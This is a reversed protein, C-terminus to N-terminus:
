VVSRKAKTRYLLPLRRNRDILSPHDAESALKASLSGRKRSNAISQDSVSAVHGVRLLALLALGLQEALLPPVANAVQTFRPVEKRRRHGGTTYKGRFQFWDPFSQLRANERVTLTRPESYHLLDDPLSTITPAASFPDLVRLAAKKLKYARRTEQSLNVNLRGEEGCTKILKAFRERIDTRHRALRTDSLIGEHGEHMVRQYATKPGKHAIAEFGKSDECEVIGNRSVELDGIADRTSPARPLGRDRLFASSNREMTAFFDSLDGSGAKVRQKGVLFFRPRAQPVGFNSARLISSQVDYDISLREELADAFNRVSNKRQTKFDSTFGQVNEILVLTPQLIDVLDLYAEFLRNRPDDRRRRGAHSFGQCPPGGALLDVKGAFHELESRRTKILRRIDWPKREISNPWVYSLPGKDDPFNSSLTDFAFADKEIAFLGTWGARKLGLSLGGCGAFVDVFFHHTQKNLM